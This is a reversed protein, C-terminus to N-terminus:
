KEKAGTEIWRNVAQKGKSKLRTNLRNRLAYATKFDDFPYQDYVKGEPFHCPTCNNKLLPLINQQFTYVRDKPKATKQDDQVNSITHSQLLIGLLFFLFSIRFLNRYKKREM